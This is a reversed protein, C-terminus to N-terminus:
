QINGNGLHNFLNHTPQIRDNNDDDCEVNYMNMEKEPALSNILHM